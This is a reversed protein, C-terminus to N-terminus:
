WQYQVIDHNTSYQGVGGTLRTPSIKSYSTITTQSTCQPENSEDWSHEIPYCEPSKSSWTMGATCCHEASFSAVSVCVIHREVNVKSLSLDM